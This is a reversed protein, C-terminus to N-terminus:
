CLNAILTKCCITAKPRQTYFRTYPNHCWDTLVICRVINERLSLEDKM